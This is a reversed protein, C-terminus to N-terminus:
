IYDVDMLENEEAQNVKEGKAVKIWNKNEIYSVMENPLLPKSYIYGQVIKIGLDRIMKLMEVTEVGEAIVTKDHQIAFDIILSALKNKLYSENEKEFFYKDLRITDIPMSDLESFTTYDLGFGNIAVKFGLRKLKLLNNKIIENNEYTAYEQVKLYIKEAKIRYKRIIKSFNNALDTDMLQRPSINITYVLDLDPYSKQINIYEKVISELGWTGIWSIDGSQEMINLFQIPTLIGHKPHQWRVFAEFGYIENKEVNIIPQYMLIFEKKEIAEKIEFHYEINDNLDSTMAQSYIVYKNTGSIKANHLAINLSNILQKLKTGHKPYFCIGVNSIFNINTDRFIKIPKNVIAIIKRAFDIAFFRDYEPKLFFLFKTGGYSAIQIRKPIAQVVKFIAKELAREAERQGFAAVIDDYEQIELLLLSFNQDATIKSLYSSIQSDIAYRSMVGEINIAKEEKYRIREKKISKFLFISLVVMAVTLLIMLVTATADSVELFM